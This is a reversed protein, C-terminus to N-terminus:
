IDEEMEETCQEEEGKSNKPKKNSSRPRDDSDNSGVSQIDLESRRLSPVEPRMRTPSVQRRPPREQKRTWRITHDFKPLRENMEIEEMNITDYRKDQCKRKTWLEVDVQGYRIQTKMGNDKGRLDQAFKSLAIYRKSLQPPIFDQLQLDPDRCQAMRSRIDKIHREDSMVVYVINEGKASVQTDTIVMEAIEKKDFRLHVNLFEQAAMKKAEDYEGVIKNFHEIYQMYVPGIGIISRAKAIVRAEVEM